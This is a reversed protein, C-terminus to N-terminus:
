LLQTRYNILYNSYDPRNRTIFRYIDSLGVNIPDSLSQSISSFSNDNIMEVQEVQEIEEEDDQEEIQGAQTMVDMGIATKYEETDIYDVKDSKWEDARQRIEGREEDTLEMYKKVLESQSGTLGTINEFIKILEDKDIQKSPNGGQASQFIKKKINLGKAGRSENGMLGWLQKDSM